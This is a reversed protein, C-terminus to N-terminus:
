TRPEVMVLTQYNRFHLVLVVPAHFAIRQKSARDDLTSGARFVNLGTHFEIM